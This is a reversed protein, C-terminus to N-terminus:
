RSLLSLIYYYIVHGNWLSIWIYKCGKDHSLHAFGHANVEGQRAVLQEHCNPCIWGCRKGNPVTDVHVMKGEANEAWSFIEEYYM